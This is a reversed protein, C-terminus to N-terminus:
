ITQFRAWTMEPRDQKAANSFPRSSSGEEYVGLADTKAAPMFINGKEDEEPTAMTDDYFIEVMKRGSIDQPLWTIGTEDLNAPEFLLRLGVGLM